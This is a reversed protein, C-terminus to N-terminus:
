ATTTRRSKKKTNKAVKGNKNVKKTRLSKNKTLQLQEEIIDVTVRPSQSEEAITKSAFDLFKALLKLSIGTLKRLAKTTVMTLSRDILGLDGAKLPRNEVKRIVRVASINDEVKIVKVKGVFKVRDGYKRYFQIIDDIKVGDQVGQDIVGFNGQLKILQVPFLANKHYRYGIIGKMKMGIMLALALLTASFLITNQYKLIRITKYSKLDPANVQAVAGQSKVKVPKSHVRSETARKKHIKKVSAKGSKTTNQVQFNTSSATHVYSQNQQYNQVQNLPQQTQQPLYSTLPRATENIKKQSAPQQSQNQADSPAEPSEELTKLMTQLDVTRKEQPKIEPKKLFEPNIFVKSNSTNEKETTTTSPKQTQLDSIHYVNGNTDEVFRIESFGYKEEKSYLPGKKIKLIIFDTGIEWVTGRVEEGNKLHLVCKKGVRIQSEQSLLSKTFSLIFPIILLLVGQILAKKRHIRNFM